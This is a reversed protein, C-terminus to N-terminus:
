REARASQLPATLARLAACERAARTASLPRDPIRSRPADCLVRWAAAERRAFLGEARASLGVRHLRGAAELAAEVLEAGREGAELADLRVVDPLHEVLLLAERLRGFRRRQLCAHATFTPIERVALAHFGRWEPLWSRGARRWLALVHPTGAVHLSVVDRGAAAASLVADLLGERALERRRWIRWSGDRECAFRTSPLVCRRSRSRLRVREVREVQRRLRPHDAPALLALAAEYEEDRLVRWLSHALKARMRARVRRPSLRPLRISHLDVLAIRPEGAQMRVLMNGGHLDPHLIGAERLREHLAATARLLPAVGGRRSRLSDLLTTFPEGPAEAAVFFADRLWGGSHAVGVALPAAAEIGAQALALAARWEAEARPPAVRYKLRERLGRVRYRKVYVSRGDLKMRWVRRAQSAKILVSGPLQGPDDLATCLAEVSARMGPRAKWAFGGVRYQELRPTVAGSEVM